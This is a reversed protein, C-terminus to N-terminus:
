SRTRLPLSTPPPEIRIWSIPTWRRTKLVRPNVSRSVWSLEAIEELGQAEAGRGVAADGVAEVAQDHEEGALLGDALDDGEGLRCACEVEHGTRGGGDVLASELTQCKCRSPPVRRTSIPDTSRSDTFGAKRASRL